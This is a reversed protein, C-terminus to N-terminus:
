QTTLMRFTELDEGQLLEDIKDKVAVKKYYELPPKAQNANYYQLYDRTHRQSIDDLKLKDSAMLKKIYEPYPTV